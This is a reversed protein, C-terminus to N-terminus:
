INEKKKEISTSDTKYIAVANINDFHDLFRNLIDDISINNM